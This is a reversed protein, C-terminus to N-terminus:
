KTRSREAFRKMEDQYTRHFQRWRSEVHSLQRLVWIPNLKEKCTGCTVETGSENIEYPGHRGANCQINTHVVQLVPTNDETRKRDPFALIKPDDDLPIPPLIM